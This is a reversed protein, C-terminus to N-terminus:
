RPRGWPTPVLAAHGPYPTSADYAVVCWLIAAAGAWGCVLRLPRPGRLLHWPLLALLAGVAFQWVRSPTGLYALSVSDRTWHLSLAFSAVAAGATVLAVVARVARGRRVARAATLM